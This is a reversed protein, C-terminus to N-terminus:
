MVIGGKSSSVYVNEFQKNHIFINNSKELIIENM